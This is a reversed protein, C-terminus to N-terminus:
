IWIAEFQLSIRHSRVFPFGHLVHHFIFFHNEVEHEEHNIPQRKLVIYISSM